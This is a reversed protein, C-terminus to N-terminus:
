TSAGKDQHPRAPAHQEDLVRLTRLLRKRAHHLRSRVTGIPQGTVLAIEAYKMDEWYRLHVTERLPATLEQMAEDIREYDVERLLDDEKTPMSHSVTEAVSYLLEEHRQRKRLVDVAHNRTVQFLWTRFARPNALGSIRRYVGLWVEQQADEAETHGLLRVLYLHTRAQFRGFLELFAHEDGAQCRVVLMQERLSTHKPARNGVM